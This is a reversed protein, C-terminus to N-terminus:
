RKFIGSIGGYHWRRLGWLCLPPPLTANKEPFFKKYARSLISVNVKVIVKVLVFVFVFVIVRVNVNVKVIVIVFVFVNVRVNVIVIVLVLVIVKVKVNVIVSTILTTGESLTEFPFCPFLPLHLVPWEM